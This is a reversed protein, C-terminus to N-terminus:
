QVVARRDRRKRDAVEVTEAEAEPLIESMDPVTVSVTDIRRQIEKLAPLWYRKFVRKSDFKELLRRAKPRLASHNRCKYAEELADVISSVKARCRYSNAGITWDPVTEVKWGTKMLEDTTSFDTAIVPCGCLQAEVIPIGFGESKAPNLLVDSARYVNIMYDQNLMGLVFPIPDPRLVYNEVGLVQAMEGINIPGDWDAHIYLASNPHAAHFKAFAQLAENFGKRDQGDKNAAVMSILFDVSEPLVFQQRAAERDGPTFKDIPVSAPVYHAEIGAKALVEVGWRSYVMTYLSPELAAVVNLPAPDHDLPLWPCFHTQGTFKPDFVWVDSCTILIDAGLFKYIKHVSKKGYQAGDISPLVQVAGMSDGDKGTIQWPLPQGQLGYWTSLTVQHGARVLDPVTRNTLISYSSPSWPASSHWLIKM